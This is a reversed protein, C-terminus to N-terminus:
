EHGKQDRLQDLEKRLEAIIKDRETMAQDRDRLQAKLVGIEIEQRINKDKLEDVRTSLGEIKANMQKSQESSKNLVFEVLKLVLPSIIATIIIPLYNDM